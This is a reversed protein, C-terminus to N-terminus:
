ATKKEEVYSLSGARHLVEFGEEFVLGGSKEDNSKGGSGWRSM